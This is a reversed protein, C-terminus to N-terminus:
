EEAQKKPRVYPKCEPHKDTLFSRIEGHHVKMDIITEFHGRVNEQKKLYKNHGYTGVYFPPYKKKKLVIKGDLGYQTFDLIENSPIENETRCKTPSAVVTPFNGQDKRFEVVHLGKEEALQQHTKQKLLGIFFAKVIHQLNRSGEIKAYLDKIGIVQCITKIARQCVLGYGEPKRKIFIKTAGFQCFIDHFVTHGNCIDVHILKQGARNKVKRMATKTDIAKAVSFGAIGNGNGTVAMVSLRRKRGVNGKMIFVTKLELVRTDFGEFTQDGIPDPAGISRGPMKNGSWGRDIPSLRGMRRFGMSDRLKILNAEREKDEPLEERKVLERGRAVPANLGPWVMNIKGVGIVQGRNLDRGKKKAAGRGRGRKMGANSVSTVGKWLQEAPLKVFFSTPRAIDVQPSPSHQLLANSCTSGVTNIRLKQLNRVLINM